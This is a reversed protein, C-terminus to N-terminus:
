PYIFKVEAEASAPVHVQQKLGGLKEHWVAVTYDGPPVNKWQFVGDAGTVTFYPHDLVGIYAHMWSHVNCKVPIMVDPRPFKHELDPTGPSQQQNWERNNAPMPHINHSVNDSNKVQLTQGALMGIVRPAFMCGHQDLLVPEAPPEFKKGELGSAIYVFANALGGSKGTVVPEDYAGGPCGADSNMDIRKRPPKPGRYTVMGRVSGTTATDM